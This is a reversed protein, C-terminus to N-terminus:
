PGVPPPSPPLDQALIVPQGCEPCRVSGSRGVPYDCRSCRGIEVALQRRKHDYTRRLVVAVAAVALAFLWMKLTEHNPGASRPVALTFGTWVAAFLGHLLVPVAFLWSRWREPLRAGGPDSRCARLGLLPAAWGLWFVSAVWLSMGASVTKSLLQADLSWSAQRIVGLVWGGVVLALGLAIGVVGLGVHPARRLTNSLRM